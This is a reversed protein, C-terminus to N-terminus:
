VSHYAAGRELYLAFVALPPSELHWERVRRSCSCAVRRWCSNPRVAHAHREYGERGEVFSM